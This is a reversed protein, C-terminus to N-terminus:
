LGFGRGLFLGVHSPVHSLLSALTLSSGTIISILVVVASPRSLRKIILPGLSTGTTFCVTALSFVASLHARGCGLAAELPPLLMSWVYFAGCVVSLTFCAGLVVMPSLTRGQDAGMITTRRLQVQPPARVSKGANTDQTRPVALLHNPQPPSVPLHSGTRVFAYSPLLAVTILVIMVRNAGRIVARPETLFSPSLSFSENM